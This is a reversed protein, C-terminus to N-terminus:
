PLAWYDVKGPEVIIHFVAVELRRDPEKKRKTPLGKGRSPRFSFYLRICTKWPADVAEVATLDTRMSLGRACSLARTPISQVMEM